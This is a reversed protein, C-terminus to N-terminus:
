ALSAHRESKRAVAARITSTITRTDTGPGFVADVGLSKLYAVDAPPIVGGVVLVVEDLGIGKEKM